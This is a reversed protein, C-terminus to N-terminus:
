LYLFHKWNVFLLFCECNFAYYNHICENTMRKWITWEFHTTWSDRLHTDWSLKDSDFCNHISLNCDVVLTKSTTLHFCYNLAISSNYCIISTTKALIFGHNNNIYFVLYFCTEKSSNVKYNIRRIMKTKKANLTELLLEEPSLVDCWM